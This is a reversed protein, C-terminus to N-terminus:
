ADYVPLWRRKPVVERDLRWPDILQRVRSFRVVLNDRLIITLKLSPFFKSLFNRAKLERMVYLGRSWPLKLNRLKLNVCNKLFTFISIIVKQFASRIKEQLFSLETTCLQRFFVATRYCRRPRPPVTISRGIPNCHTPNQIEAPSNKIHTCLTYQRSSTYNIIIQALNSKRCIQKFTPAIYNPSQKYETTAEFLQSLGFFSWFLSQLM